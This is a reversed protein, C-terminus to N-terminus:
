ASLSGLRPTSPSASVTVRLDPPELRSITLPHVALNNGEDQFEPVGNGGNGGDAGLLLYYDGEIGEPLTVTAQGTYSSGAALAGSRGVDALRVDGGDLSPDRSLFISDSWARQRTERTGINEVTWEVSIQQGSM